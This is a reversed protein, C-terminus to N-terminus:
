AGPSAVLLDKRNDPEPQKGGPPPANPDPGPCDAPFTLPKANPDGKPAVFMILEGSTGPLGEQTIIGDPARAMPQSNGTNPGTTTQLRWSVQYGLKLLTAEAEQPTMQLIGSCHLPGGVSFPRDHEGLKIAPGVPKTVGDFPNSRLLLGAAHLRAPGGGVGTGNPFTVDLDGSWTAGLPVAAWKGTATLWDGNPKGDYIRIEKVWSAGTAQDGDFSLTMRMETANEKWAVELTRYTPDGPDSRVDPSMNTGTFRQGNAEIWFDAADFQVVNTQWLVRNGGGLTTTGRGGGGVWMAGGGLALLVIVATAVLAVLRGASGRDRGREAAIAVNARVAVPVTGFDLERLTAADRRAAAAFSRCALCDSLHEDLAAQDDPDIAFDLSQTFTERAAQHDIM